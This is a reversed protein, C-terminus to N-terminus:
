CIGIEKAREGLLQLGMADALSGEVTVTGNMYASWASLHGNILAFLTQKTMNFTVDVPPKEALTWHCSGPGDRLNIDIERSM